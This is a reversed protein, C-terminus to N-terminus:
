HGQDTLQWREGPAEIVKGEDVLQELNARVNRAAMDVLNPAVDVYITRVLEGVSVGAKRAEKRLWDRFASTILVQLRATKM